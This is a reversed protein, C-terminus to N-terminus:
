EMGTSKKERERLDALYNELTMNLAVEQNVFDESIRGQQQQFSTVALDLKETEKAFDTLVKDRLENAGDVRTKEADDLEAMRRELKEEWKELRKQNLEMEHEMRVLKALIRENYDFMSCSPEDDHRCQAGGVIFTTVVVFIYISVSM